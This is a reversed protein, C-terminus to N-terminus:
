PLPGRIVRIRHNGQDSFWLNGEEDILVGWPRRLGASRADEGDGFFGPRDTGAVTEILGTGLDIVRIRHNGADAFYLRDGDLFLGSPSDLAAELAPGADGSFGREGTGALTSIEQEQGDIVRIRHNGTDSIFIRGDNAVFLGEPSHLAAQFPREGDGSFGPEGTGALRAVFGSVLRAIRHNATDAFLVNGGAGITVATPSQIAFDLAPLDRTEAGPEGTGVLNELVGNVMRRVRHNEQDSFAVWGQDSVAVGAPRNLLAELPDPEAGSDGPTGTGVLTGISPYDVAALAGEVLRIRHNGKDAVVLDGGLLALGAPEALGALVAPGEDGSFDLASGAVTRVIGTSYEILRIRHNLTDAVLLNGGADLALGSPLNFEADVAPSGDGSFGATGTGAVTHIVGGDDVRRVSHNLSDTVFLNGDADVALGGPNNLSAQSAPGSDGSYGAIGNGALTQISGESSLIRIRHNGSDAVAAPGDDFVVVSRPNSLRADVALGGDGSYGAEGTGAVTEIVGSDADIRRVRHNGTDAIWIHGEADVAVGRPQNLRASSALGGDGHFGATGDGAVTSVVGTDADVRRIRHNTTDAVILNGELDLAVAGPSQLDALVGVAGDGSFGSRGTGVLTGIVRTVGAVRRIRNQGTDAIFLDGAPSVALGLPSRLQAATAVSGDGVDSTGGAVTTVQGPLLDDPRPPLVNLPIQALGGRHQVTLTQRGSPLPPLVFSIETTDVFDIQPIPVGGIVVIAEPAINRGRITVRDGGLAFVTDPEVEVITPGAYRIQQVTQLSEAVLVRGSITTTLGGPESFTDREAALVVDGNRLVVRVRGTEEESVYLNGFPDRVLGVPGQFHIPSTQFRVPVTLGPASPSLNLGGLTEVRGDEWVRRILNNGTDAVLVSTPPPPAGTLERALQEVLSEAEYALGRPGNFRAGPGQGDAQGAQGAQGAVTRVEGTLPDIRRITHNGSDAIWLFGREDLGVGQPANFRAQDRPGDQSGPQTTGAFTAVEGANGPRILRILHNAADSVYVQGGAQDVALFAPANFLAQLRLGDRLGPEQDVGAYVSAAVELADARLVTHGSRNALYIRGSSDQAVDTPRFGPVGSTITGATVTFRRVLDGSSIVVTTFGRNHATMIGTQDVAITAPDLSLYQLLFDDRANGDEDLAIPRLPRVSGQNITLDTSNVLIEAIRATVGPYFQGGGGPSLAFPARSSDVGGIPVVLDEGDSQFFSLTGVSESEPDGSILILRTSFGFGFGVQPFLLTGTPPPLELNVVPLTTLIPQGRGNITLKLTVPAVPHDSVIEMLGTFGQPLDSFIEDAFIALHGETPVTRSRTEIERQERDLLRFLIQSQPNGPSALAVGTQTGANDVFIRARQTLRAAAVGAESIVADGTTYQFIATGSLAGAGDQSSVVAYGVGVQGDTRTLQGRFVGNGPIQFPFESGNQDGLDLVLPLGASDVLRIVGAVPEPSANLLVIQTSLGGGAGVQPFVIFDDGATGSAKGREVVPLTAFIPQGFQNESQRLTVAAWRRDGDLDEFSLSGVFGAPLPPDLPPDEGVLEDVFLALHEGPEFRRDRQDITEGSANRLTLLLTGPDDRVNVIAVGTKTGAQDVFIRGAALPEVAAVGAQSVLIGQSDAFTFLATGLPLATGPADPELVGYGVKLEDQSHVSAFCLGTLFFGNWWRGFRMM